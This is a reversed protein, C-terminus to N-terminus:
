RQNPRPSLAACRLQQAGSCSSATPASPAGRSCRSRASSSRPRLAPAHAPADSSTCGSAAVACVAPRRAHPAGSASPPTASRWTATRSRLPRAAHSLPSAARRVAPSLAHLPLNRSAGAHLAGGSADDVGAPSARGGRAGGQRAVASRHARVSRACTLAHGGSRGRSLPGSPVGPAWIRVARAALRGRPGAAPRTRRRSRRGRSPPPRYATCLAPCLMAHGRPAVALAILARPVRSARVTLPRQWRARPAARCRGAPLVRLSEPRARWRAVRLWSRLSTRERGARRAWCPPWRARGVLSAVRRPQSGASSSRAALSRRPAAAAIARRARACVEACVAPPAQLVRRRTQLACSHGLIAFDRAAGLRVREWRARTPRQPPVCASFRRLLLRCPAM